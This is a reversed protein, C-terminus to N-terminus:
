SYEYDSFHRSYIKKKMGRALKSGAVQPNQTWRRVLTTIRETANSPNISYYHSKMIMSHSPILIRSFPIVEFAISNYFM